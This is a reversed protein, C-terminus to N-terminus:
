LAPEATKGDDVRAALVRRWSYILAPVAVAIMFLTIVVYGEKVPFEAILLTLLGFIVFLLGGYFLTRAGTEAGIQAIQAETLGRVFRLFSGFLAGMVVLILMTGLGFMLGPLFGVWPSSWHLKLPPQTATIFAAFLGEFGFGAIFGHILIWHIPTTASSARGGQAAHLKADAQGMLHRHPHAGRALLVAGAASMALGVLIYVISGVLEQTLFAALAFYALQSLLARQVTFALSFYFGAKLGARGSAGGVAYSFTIPWTHEDPLVGHLLGLAFAYGLAVFPTM